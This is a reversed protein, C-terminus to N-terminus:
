ISKVAESVTDSKIYPFCKEVFNLREPFNGKLYKSNTAYIRMAEALDEVAIEQDDSDYQKKHKLVYESVYKEQSQDSSIITKYQELIKPDLKQVLAHTMEHIITGFIYARMRDDESNLPLNKLYAFDSSKEIGFRRLKIKSYFPSLESTARIKYIHQLNEPNNIGELFMEAKIYDEKTEAILEGSEERKLFGKAVLENGEQVHKTSYGRYLLYKDDKTIRGVKSKRLADLGFTNKLFEKVARDPIKPDDTEEFGTIIPGSTIIEKAELLNRAVNYLLAEDINELIKEPQDDVVQKINSVMQNFISQLNILETKQEKSTLNLEELGSLRRRDIVLKREGTINYTTGFFRYHYKGEVELIKELSQQSSLQNTKMVEKIFNLYHSKVHEPCHKFRQYNTLIEGSPQQSIISESDIHEINKEM